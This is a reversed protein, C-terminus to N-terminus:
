VKQGVLATKLSSRLLTRTSGKSVAQTLSGSSVAFTSDGNYHVSVTHAGVGLTKLSLTAHGSADVAVPTQPTGDVAFTVTGTPTGSAGVATVTATFTVTQGFRSPSTSTTLTTSSGNRVDQSISSTSSSSAFNGDGSYRASVTHAGFALGNLTLTAHG